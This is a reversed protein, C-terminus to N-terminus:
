GEGSLAKEKAPSRVSKSEVLWWASLASALALGVTIYAVLRFSDIFAENIAQKIAPRLEPSASTPVEAAALKIKQTELDQKVQTPVQLSSIRSDLNGGFSALVFIGLVAIALLGATRSVANNIGSAVGSHRADVAGMVTTTLPAVTIAMGLGLVVIAPFYTTWYSGGIGPLAYLGFGVAAITPGVVLPLKAGYRAVLGGSWRSLTFMIAIFPLFAAGAATTSYGQVQILNFPLFFTLGGLAAYLLLTLLNTGSFTRSKFLELSMMPAASRAEVVIFGALALVGVVLFALVDPSGLGSSGAQILGYVVAGLGFTALVAGPWDLKKAAAEEDRSEPVRWFIVTLVIAAMPLNIFFIARWSINEILWGGLVPGLVTTITTFGSWTGIARGREKNPYTASIIALSGPVLLAGGVGQVARALILFTINPALGCAASAIAFLGVGIAFVRRRGFHDGLSGGVLVLAALFLAYAEVVWQVESTTAKLDTQLVPLAVNVVTGDIFAMSSGLITAVLVWRKTNDTVETSNLTTKSTGAKKDGPTKAINAM